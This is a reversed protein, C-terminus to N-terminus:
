MYKGQISLNQLQKLESLGAPLGVYKGQISLKQLQKLESLGSPLRKLPNHDLNLAKVQSLYKIEGPLDALNLDKLTLETIRYTKNFRQMISSVKGLPMGQFHVRKLSIGRLISNPLATVKIYRIDIYRLEELNAIESSLGSKGKFSLGNLSFNELNPMTRFFTMPFDVEQNINLHVSNVNENYPAFLDDKLELDSQLDSDTTAMALKHAKCICLSGHQILNHPDTVPVGEYRIPSQGQGKILELVSKTGDTPNSQNPLGGYQAAM